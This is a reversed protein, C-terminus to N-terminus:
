PKMGSVSIPDAGLTFEGAETLKFGNDIYYSALSNTPELYPIYLSTVGAAAAVALRAAIIARGLGRHRHAPDVVFDFFEGSVGQFLISGFGILQKDYDERVGVNLRGKGATEFDMEDNIMTTLTSLLTEGSSESCFHLRAVEIRKIRTAYSYGEPLDLDAAALPEAGLENTTYGDYRKTM